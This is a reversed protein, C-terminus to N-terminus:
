LPGTSRAQCRSPAFLVRTTHRRTVGRALSGAARPVGAYYRIYRPPLPATLTGAPPNGPSPLNPPQFVLLASCVLGFRWRPSLVVWMGLTVPQGANRWVAQTGFNQAVTNERTLRGPAAPRSAPPLRIDTEVRKVRDALRGFRAGKGGPPCREPDSAVSQPRFSSRPTSHVTPKCAATRSLLFFCTARRCSPMSWCAAIPCRAATLALPLTAVVSSTTPASAPCVGGALLGAVGRGPQKWVRASLRGSLQGALVLQLLRSVGRQQVWLSGVALLFGLVSLVALRRVWRMGSSLPTM